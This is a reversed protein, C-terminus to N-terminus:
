KRRRFVDDYIQEGVLLDIRTTLKVNYEMGKCIEIPIEPYYHFVMSADETFENGEKLAKEHANKLLRTEFKQPLQVNVLESRKLLGEVEKHGKIVTFPIDIGFIANRERENILREFDEVKVFPRASEHIIVDDTTVLDLGSKVSAQRTAGAPAFRVKKQVGYQALMLEIPEVYEDVCVVIVEEIAPILDVRELIHMIVPKGALLMYQKPVSYQMRSGSGGSLLVLTFKKEM